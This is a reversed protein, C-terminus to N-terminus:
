CILSSGFFGSPSDPHRTDAPNRFVIQFIAYGLRNAMPSKVM